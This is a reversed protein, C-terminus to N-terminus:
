PRGDEEDRTERIYDELRDPAVSPQSDRLALVRRTSAQFLRKEDDTLPQGLRKLFQAIWVPDVPSATQIAMESVM